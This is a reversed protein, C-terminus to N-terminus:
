TSTTHSVARMIKKKKLLKAARKVALLGVLSGSNGAEAKVKPPPKDEILKTPLMLAKAAVGQSMRRVEPALAKVNALERMKEYAEEDDDSESANSGRRRSLLAEASSKAEAQWKERYDELESPKLTYQEPPRPAGCERCFLCDEFYELCCVPCRLCPNPAFAIADVAEESDLGEEGKKKKSPSTPLCVPRPGFRGTRLKERGEELAKAEAAAKKRVLVQRWIEQVKRAAKHQLEDMVRRDEKASKELISLFSSDYVREAGGASQGAARAARQRALLAARERARKARWNKQVLTAADELRTSPTHGQRSLTGRRMAQMKNVIAYAPSGESLDLKRGLRGRHIHQIRQEVDLAEPEARALESSTFRLAEPGYRDDYRPVSSESSREAMFPSEVRDGYSTLGGLFGAMKDLAARSKRAKTSERKQVPTAATTTMSAVFKGMSGTIKITHKRRKEAIEASRKLHIDNKTQSSLGIMDVDELDVFDDSQNAEANKAGQKEQEEEDRDFDLALPGGRQFLRKRQKNTKRARVGLDSLESVQDPLLLKNLQSRVRYVAPSRGADEEMMNDRLKQEASAKCRDMDGWATPKAVMAATALSLDPVVMEEGEPTQTPALANRVHRRSKVSKSSFLREVIDEPTGEKQYHVSSVRLEEAELRTKMDQKVRLDENRLQADKYLLEFRTADPPRNPASTQSRKEDVHRQRDRQRATKLWKEQYLRDVVKDVGARSAKPKASHVSKAKLQSETLHQAEQHREQQKWARVQQDCHLRACASEVCKEPKKVAKAKEKHIIGLEKDEEEWARRLLSERKKRQVEDQKYLKDCRREGLKDGKGPMTAPKTSLEPKFWGATRRVQVVKATNELKRARNAGDAYLREFAKQREAESRQRPPSASRRETTECLSPESRHRQFAKEMSLKGKENQHLYDCYSPRRQRPACRRGPLVRSHRREPHPPAENLLTREKSEELEAPLLEGLLIAAFEDVDVTGGGDADMINFIRDIEEETLGGSLSLCLTGIEERDLEGSGDEDVRAFLEELMPRGGANQVIFALLELPDRESEDDDLLLDFMEEGMMDKLPNAAPSRSEATTTSLQPSQMSAAAPPSEPAASPRQEGRAVM